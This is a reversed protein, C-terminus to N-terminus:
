GEPVCFPTLEEYRLIYSPVSSEETNDYTHTLPEGTCLRMPLVGAWTSLNQDEASDKPPGTRVKLSAADISISLVCTGKLEQPSPSRVDKWRQPILHDTFGKLLQEKQDLDSVETASGFAVVSRYNMSHAFASKALVLGDIITVSICLRQSDILRKFMRSKPAGHIIITDKHRVYAMPLVFPQGEDLFSIHCLFSADLTKYIGTRDYHARESHQRVRAVEPINETSGSEPTTM